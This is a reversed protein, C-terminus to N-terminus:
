INCEGVLLIRMNGFLNNEDVFKNLFFKIPCGEAPSCVAVKVYVFGLSDLKRLVDGYETRIRSLVSWFFESYPCRKRLALGLKWFM